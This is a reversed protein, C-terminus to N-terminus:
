LSGEAEDYSCCEGALYEPHSNKLKWNQSDKQNLLEESVCFVVGGFFLPSIRWPFIFCM